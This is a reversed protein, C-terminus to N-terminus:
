QATLNRRRYTQRPAVPLDADPAPHAFGMAELDEADGDTCEFLDGRKLWVGDQKIKADSIMKRM